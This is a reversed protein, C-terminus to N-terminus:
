QVTLTLTTTKANTGSAASVTVTYTGAATGSSTSPPNSSSGGGGGGCAGMTALLALVVFLMGLALLRARKRKPAFLALGPLTFTFLWAGVGSTARANSTRATTSITLTASQTAANPTVSPPAFSCSTGTPLGSTCSFTIAGGFNGTSGPSVAVTYTAKGGAAITASNSGTVSPGTFDEGSGSITITAVPTTTVALSSSAAAVVTPTFAVQFTCSAGAAVSSGCTNNTISYPAALTSLSVSATGGSNNLTVTQSSTTGIPVAGFALSAPSVMVNAPTTGSLAIDAAWVGRGYTSAVLQKKGGAKSIALHSVVVNPLYGTDGAAPLAPGVETWTTGNDSTVFVGVDTGVYIVTSDDPDIVVTNAPADPLGGTNPQGIATWGTGGTTTKLVHATTFGMVTAYATKGTADTTDIAIDSIRYGSANLATPSVDSWSSVGADASLTRFIKGSGYGVYIVQSGNATKPGGAALAYIYNDFTSDTACTAATGTVFNPSIATGAYTTSATGRWVRCTGILMKTPLQPDLIYPAYFASSDGGLTDVGANASGSNDTVYNFGNDNCSYGATCVGIIADTLATYVTTPTNPNIATHGGDGGLVAQWALGPSAISSNTMSTGNDQAGAIFGTSDSPDPTTHNFQALSGLSTNLNGFPLHGGSPTCSGTNLGSSNVTRYAGGDNGFYVVNPTSVSFDIAHQDPHLNSTSGEPSCGYVHTINMFRFPETAGTCTPHTANITCKWWNGSGVYVDTATSDSPNPVAAIAMNFFTQYGGCGVSDGCSDIGTQDLQTWSAGGDTSKYVGKDVQNVDVVWLYMEDRGPRMALEGRWFPCNGSVGSSTIPCTAATVFSPQAATPTWTLGDSSQFIGAFRIAAYFKKQVPNYIVSHAAAQVTFGGSTVSPSRWTQGADTSTWLGSIMGTTFLGTNRGVPTSMSSAVATAGDSSFAIHGFGLGALSQTAGSVNGNRILSWSQGGDASRMIGLGYYSDVGAKAEGTGVLIVNHDAPSIAISGVSLTAQNDSLPTWVVATPDSAAANTSKWVGGYAGGVLVTNGTADTQDVAVATVRGTVPGSNDSLSNQPRIPIPGIPRWTTSPGGVAITAASVNATATQASRMTMLQRAKQARVTRADMKAQHAQQRMVAANQGAPAKRGQLFVSDREGPRDVSDEKETLENFKRGEALASTTLLSIACLAILLCNPHLSFRSREPPFSRLAM